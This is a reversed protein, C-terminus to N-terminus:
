GLHCCEAWMLRAGMHTCALHASHPGQEDVGADRGGDGAGCIAHLDGGGRAFTVYTIPGTHGAVTHTIRGARTIAPLVSMCAGAKLDDVVYLNGDHCGAVLATAAPRRYCAVSHVKTFM